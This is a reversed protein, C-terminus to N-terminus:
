TVGGCQRIPVTSIENDHGIEVGTMSEHIEALWDQHVIEFIIAGLVSNNRPDENRLDCDGWMVYEPHKELIEDRLRFAEEDSLEHIYQRRKEAIMREYKAM